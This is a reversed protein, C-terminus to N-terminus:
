VRKLHKIADKLLRLEIECSIGERKFVCHREKYYAVLEELLDLASTDNFYVLVKIYIEHFEKRKLRKRIKSCIETAEEETCDYVIDLPIDNRCRALTPLEARSFLWYEADKKRFADIYEKFKDDM